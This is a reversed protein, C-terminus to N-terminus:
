RTRRVTVLQLAVLHSCGRRSDCSCFWGRGPQHGLEYVEGSGRCQATVLDGDVKTVVLRGEVVYRRAKAEVSERATM